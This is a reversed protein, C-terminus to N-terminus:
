VAWDLIPAISREFSSSPLLRLATDRLKVAAPSAWQGAAGVQRSRRAIMQTRPRRLRDYATLGGGSALVTGLVVADELAQCAGQGLNPTMAHAADGALVVRGSTYAALPPLDYLDHHLVSGPDAAALLAPIPDHWGGFRRRLEALGGDAAGERANATAYVYIRGGPLPAYGFREGRGWSESTGTVPVPPCVIRWSTYGAYRPAPAAPWVSRRTASRMGDAGVVLDARCEGGSHTVTGDARVASVLTGPRLAEQPVAARLVALLDARHIMATLGYRRQLDGADARSLWRGAPDRIGVPGQLVARSRVLEGVGLADLARLANPWLSLGAGVETFGPAREFVEVQWGRSTLALASALGAIGGGIVIAKM